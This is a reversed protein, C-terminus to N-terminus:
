PQRHPRRQQQRRHQHNLQVTRFTAHLFWGVECQSCGCSNQSSSPVIQGELCRPVANHTCEKCLGDIDRVLPWACPVVAEGGSCHAEDALDECNKTMDCGM